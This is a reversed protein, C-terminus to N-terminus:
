RHGGSDLCDQLSRYARFHEQRGFASSQVGLCQGDRTRKVLTPDDSDFLARDPLPVAPKVPTAAPAPSVAAAAVEAAGATPGASPAVAPAKSGAAKRGAKMCDEMTAFRGTAVLPRESTVAPDYCVGAISMKVPLKEAASLPLAAAWLWLTLGAVRCVGRKDM